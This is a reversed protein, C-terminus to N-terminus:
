TAPTPSQRQCSPCQGWFVVEAEDVVYGADDSPLLCPQEGIACDVDTVRGCLRCVMHHHNDGTRTEFVAASGAPQIRRILGAERCATLVDYVAQISVKGLRARVRKTVHEATAHPHEVLDDLVAVRPKTVRLGADRLVAESSVM